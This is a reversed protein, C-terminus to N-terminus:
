FWVYNWTHNLCKRLWVQILLLANHHSWDGGM